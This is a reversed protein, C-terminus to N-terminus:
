HNNSAHNETKNNPRQQRQKPALKVVALRRHMGLHETASDLAQLNTDAAQWDSRLLDRIQEPDTTEWVQAM